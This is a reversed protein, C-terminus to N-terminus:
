EELPLNILKWVRTVDAYPKDLTVVRKSPNEEHHDSPQPDDNRITYYNHDSWLAINNASNFNIYFTGDPGISNKPLQDIIIDNKSDYYM